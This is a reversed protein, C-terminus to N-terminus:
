RTDRVCSGVGVFAVDRGAVAMVMTGYTKNVSLSWGAGDITKPDGADIGQVMLNDDITEVRDISSSLGPDWHALRITKAKFDLSLHRIDESTEVPVLQCGSHANCEHLQAVTCLLPSGGDFTDKGFAPSGVLSVITALAAIIQIKM